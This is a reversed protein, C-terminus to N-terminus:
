RTEPQAIGPLALPKARDLGQETLQTLLKKATNAQASEPAISITQQWHQQAVSYAGAAIAINGAELAVAPDSPSLLAATKIFNQADDLAGARRALTASLLWALPDNPVIRRAESLDNTAPEVNGGAVYARARDLLVGNRAFTPLSADLLAKTLYQQAEQATGAALAAGGAQAWFMPAIKDKAAAAHTAAEMFNDAAKAHENQESYAAALCAQALYGGKNKQWESANVIASPADTEALTLCERMRVEDFTPLASSQLLSTQLLLLLPLFM